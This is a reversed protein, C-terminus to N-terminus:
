RRGKAQLRAMLFKALVEEFPTDLTVRHYDAGTTRIIEDFDTLYKKVVERYRRAILAPDVMMSEGDEMDVFRAPRDFDFKLEAPDLLHFLAIDHRRFKLHELAVKLEAPEIFFDSVVVVLARQSVQEAADHLSELITTEGKPEILAHQDLVLRLHAVGRKAPIKEPHAALYALSGALKRGYDIRTKGTEGYGMAGSGDVILALRLNTDAEFEKIYYRDSRGWTRWDLRRVDDGPVYKRYQAFEVSSGRVPSRHRGSVNGMMTQRANLPLALLRSIVDSDLFSHDANM